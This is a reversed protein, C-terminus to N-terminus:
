EDSEGERGPPHKRASSSALLRELRTARSYSWRLQRNESNCRFLVSSALLSYVLSALFLWLLDFSASM